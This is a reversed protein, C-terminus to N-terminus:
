RKMPKEKYVQCHRTLLESNSLFVLFFRINGYALESHWEYSQRPHSTPVSSQYACIVPLCRPSIRAIRRWEKANKLLEGIVSVRYLSTYRPQYQGAPQWCVANTVLGGSSCNFRCSFCNDFMFTFVAFVATFM